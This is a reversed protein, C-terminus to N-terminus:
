EQLNLSKLKEIEKKTLTVIIHNEDFKTCNELDFLQNLQEFPIVGSKKFEPFKIFSVYWNKIVTDNPLQYGFPVYPKLPIISPVNETLVYFGKIENNCKELLAKAYYYSQQQKENLYIQYQIPIEKKELQKLQNFFTTELTIPYIAGYITQEKELEKILLQNNFSVEENELKNLDNISYLKEEQYFNNVELLDCLSKILKYFMRIDHETNFYNVSLEIDYNPKLLFTIGRGIMTPDYLIFQINRIDRKKNYEELAFAVNLVGFKLNEQSAWKKFKPFNKLKRKEQKLNVVISM